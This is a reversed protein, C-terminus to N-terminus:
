SLLDTCARSCRSASSVGRIRRAPCGPASEAFVRELTPPIRSQTLTLDLMTRDILEVADPDLGVIHQTVEMARYFSPFHCIGLVKHPPLPAAVLASAREAGSTGESGVLLHALNPKVGGDVVAHRHQLRCSGCCRPGARPLRLLTALPSQWCQTALSRYAPAGHGEISGFLIDRGLRAGSRDGVTHACTAMASRARACSNYGGHRRADSRRPPSMSRSGYTTGACSLTQAILVLGPQLVVERKAIDLELIADLYKTPRHHARPGGGSWMALKGRRAAVGSRRRARSASPPLDRRGRQAAPLASRSSRTSRPMPRYRGSRPPMSYVECRTERRLRAEVRLPSPSAPAADPGSRCTDREGDAGLITVVRAGAIAGGARSRGPTNVNFFPDIADIALRRGRSSLRLDLCRGQAGSGTM